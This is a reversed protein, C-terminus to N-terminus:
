FLIFYRYLANAAFDFSFTMTQEALCLYHLMYNIFKKNILVTLFPPILRIFLSFVLFIFIKIYEIFKLAVIM